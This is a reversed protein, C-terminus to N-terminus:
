QVAGQNFLNTFSSALFLSTGALSSRAFMGFPQLFPASNALM